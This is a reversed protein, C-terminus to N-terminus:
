VHARGIECAGVRRHRDRLLPSQAAVEPLAALRVDLDPDRVDGLRFPEVWAALLQPLRVTSGALMVCPVVQGDVDVVVGDGSGLACLPPGSGEDAPAGAPRDLFRVPRAGTDREHELCLDFVAALQRELEASASGNWGPDPTTIAGLEIRRVGLRLLLRTSEALHPLNASTVTVVVELHEAFLRSHDARLRALTRELLPFTGPARAEQAADVGDFSLRLHARHKALLAATGDDLLTGNTAVTLRVTKGAPPGRQALREVARRVLAPELLPEGGTLGLRPTPHPSRLALDVSADVVEGAMSRAGRREQYCYSCALNCRTTLVLVVSRLGAAGPQSREPDSRM